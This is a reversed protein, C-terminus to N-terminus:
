EQLREFSKIKSEAWCSKKGAYYCHWCRYYYSYIKEGNAGYGKFRQPNSAYKKLPSHHTPCLVDSDHPTNHHKVPRGNEQIFKDRKAQYKLRRIETREKFYDARSKKAPIDFAVAANDHTYPAKYM